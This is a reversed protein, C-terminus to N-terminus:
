LDPIRVLIALALVIIIAGAIVLPSAWGAGAFGEMLIIFVPTLYIYATAKAAPIRMVAFQLLFFTGITTFLALYFIAVWVIVPLALWDTKLVSPLAYLNVCFWTGIITWFTFLLVPEQRHFKKVLVAYLAHAVTGIFFIAEGRGINFSLLADIDGRFILWVAGIAAVWLSVSISLGSVQKLIFYGLLASMLPLLTFVASLSVPNTLELAVFMLVMYTGMLAGLILFRWPAIPALAYKIKASGDPRFHYRWFVFTGLVIMAISFRVGNLAGADILGAVRSGLSYSGAILFSFLVMALHGLMQPKELKLHRNPLPPQDATM